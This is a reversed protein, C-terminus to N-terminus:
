TRTTAKTSGPSTIASGSMQLAKAATSRAEHKEFAYREGVADQQAPTDQGLLDCLDLFHAQAGSRESGAYLKWRRVFEQISLPM